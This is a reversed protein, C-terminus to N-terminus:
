MNLPLDSTQNRSVAVCTEPRFCFSLISVQHQAMAQAIYFDRKEPKYHAMHLASLALIGRMAFDYSFGVQPVNIRWAIKM